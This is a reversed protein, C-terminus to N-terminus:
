VVVFARMLSLVVKNVYTNNNAGKAWNAFFEIRIKRTGPPVAGSLARRIFQTDDTGAVIDTSDIQSIYADGSGYFKLSAMTSDPTLNGQDWELNADIFAQDVAGQSGSPIDVDKYFTADVATGNLRSAVMDWISTATLTATSTWNSPVFPGESNLLELRPTAGLTIQGSFDDWYTDNNAGGRRDGMFSCRIKRTGAPIRGIVSIPEWSNDPQMWESKASGLWVDASTYFDMVLCGIDTDGDFSNIYASLTCDLVGEDVLNYLGSDIDVTQSNMNRTSSGARAFRSGTRPLITGADADTIVHSNSFNGLTATWPTAVGSEFGANSLPMAWPLLAFGADGGDIEVEEQEGLVTGTPSIAQVEAFSGAATVTAGPVVVQYFESPTVWSKYEALLWDATLREARLYIHTLDGSLQEVDDEDSRGIFLTDAGAEPKAASIDDTGRLVGDRYFLRDGTGNYTASVHYPTDILTNLAESEWASSSDWVGIGAASGRIGLTARNTNSGSGTTAYSIIATTPPDDFLRQKITAGMTWTTYRSLGSVKMYDRNNHAVWGQENTQPQVEYVISSSADILFILNSGKANIGELFDGGEYAWVIGEVDGTVADVQWIGSADVTCFFKGNLYTIGQMIPLAESMTFQGIYNWSTDYEHINGNTYEATFFTGTVPNYTISAIEHMQASVNHLAVFTLDDADLQLVHQNDYPSNPYEEFPIYIYGNHACPDGAHNVGAPSGATTFLDNNALVLNWSSDYKRCFNNDTVYYYTGDWTVGQHPDNPLAPSRLATNEEKFRTVDFQQITVTGTGTRDIPDGGWLVAEYDSWVAQQGNPDTALLEDLLEDGCTVQFRNADTNSLTAAKFVVVGQQNAYDFWVLDHPIITGSLDKVRIDGGDEKVNAWWLPTMHSLDVKVPFNTLASAVMGAPIIIANSQPDVDTLKTGTPASLTISAFAGSAVTPVTGEPAAVTLGAFAGEALVTTPGTGEPALLSIQPHEGDLPKAVALARGDTAIVSIQAFAGEALASQPLSVIIPGAFAGAFRFHVAGEPPIVTLSAVAGDAIVGNGNEVNVTHSWKNSELGNLVAYIEFQQNGAFVFNFSGSTGTGLSTETRNSPPGHRVFYETGGEPTEDPDSPFVITTNLRDRRKIIVPVPDINEISAPAASGDVSVVVPPYPRQARQSMAM